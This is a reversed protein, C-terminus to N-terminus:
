RSIFARIPEWVEEICKRGALMGIHGCGPQLFTARALANYLARSSEIDVLRDRASAIVLSPTEIAQPQVSAAAM